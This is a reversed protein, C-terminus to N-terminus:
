QRAGDDIGMTSDLRAGVMSGITLGENDIGAALAGGDIGATSGWDLRTM